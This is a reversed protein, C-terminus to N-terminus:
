KRNQLASIATSHGQVLKLIDDMRAWPKTGSGVRMWHKEHLEYFRADLRKQEREPLKDFEIGGRLDMLKHYEAIEDQESVPAPGPAVGPTWGQVMQQQTQQAASGTIGQLKKIFRDIEARQAKDNVTGDTGLEPAVAPINDRFLFLGPVNGYSEMLLNDRYREAEIQALRGYLANDGQPAPEAAKEPAQAVPPPAAPATFREEFSSLKDVISQFKQDWQQRDEQYRRNLGNYRAEWDTSQQAEQRFAPQPIRMSDPGAQSIVDHSQPMSGPVMPTGAQQPIDDSM